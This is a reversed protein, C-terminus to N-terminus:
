SPLQNEYTSRPSKLNRMEDHLACTTVNLACDEVCPIYARPQFLRYFKNRDHPVRDNHVDTFHYIYIISRSISLTFILIHRYCPDEGILCVRPILNGLM